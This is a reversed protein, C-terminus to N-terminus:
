TPGNEGRPVPGASSPLDELVALCAQESPGAEWLGALGAPQKDNGEERTDGDLLMRPSSSGEKRVYELGMNSLHPGHVLLM